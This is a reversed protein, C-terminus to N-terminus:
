RLRAARRTARIKRLLEARERSRLRAECVFVFVLFAAGVCAFVLATTM